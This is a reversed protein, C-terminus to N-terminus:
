PERPQRGGAALIRDLQGSDDDLLDAHPLRRVVEIWRSEKAFVDAFMELAKEEEGNTFLTLASWFQIEVIDPALEEVLTLAEAGDAAEGAVEFGELGSVLNNLRERAPAEDDVILIRM